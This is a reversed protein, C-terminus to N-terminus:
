ARRGAGGRLVLYGALASLLSGGLVGLRLGAGYVHPDLALTGIFLSMTFGIGTLIATGYVQRWDAGEPPAALGLRVAGWTAAMVGAQKGAFLGLAIGLPLPSWAEALAAGGLHVGANAFAFLPLVGFTVWPHLLDELRALPSGGTEGGGGARLPVALGIAVGALTPPVGSTLVCLWVFVLVYPGLRAIGALNLVVLAALGPLAPLLSSASLHPSYFVAIIVIAGLDDFIALALLFV